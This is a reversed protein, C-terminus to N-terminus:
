SAAFTRTLYQHVQAVVQSGEGVAAAVRKTSGSRVDGVAFVGARSTELAAGSTLSTRDGTLIFGSDDTEVYGSLWRTQAQAGIFVFVGGADLVRRGGARDGIAVSELGRDGHLAVLQTNTHLTIRPERDIQDILYRSMTEELGDRRVLLHVRPVRAALFVAAQGASNGGGIVVAPRTGCQSAESQTAAYYVSTGEFRDIGPVDLRRYRAGTALVVARARVEDGSTLTVVQLNGETRLQAAERPSTLRAGFKEAQVAARAALDSGSLGAPFGLYNEIRSSTGAQGGVAVADVALSSLGESAGYVAAALGAPGTGVILLDVTDDKASAQDPGALGVAAALEANSPNRLLTAGQSIVVPTEHPAVGASSLLAEAGPDTELDMWTSPVRARALFELLRGTDSSYRSGIVRLGVGAGLLIARRLLLARMLIDSLTADQALVKRLGSLPVAITQTPERAVATLYVAQGTLLNLEGLFKGPGHEVITREDAQGYGDIIAVRGSVIVLLDYSADGVAFLMEGSRFSRAAGAEALVSQQEPTLVPFAGRRETEENTTVDATTM